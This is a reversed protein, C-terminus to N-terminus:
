PSETEEPAAACREELYAALSEFWQALSGPVRLDDRRFVRVLWDVHRKPLKVETGPGDLATQWVAWIKRDSPPMGQPFAQNEVVHTILVRSAAAAIGAEDDEAIPDGGRPRQRLGARNSANIVYEPTGLDLVIERSEEQAVALLSRPRRKHESM